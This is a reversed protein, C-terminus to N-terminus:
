RIIVKKVSAGKKQIYIGGVTVNDVRIGQLTFYESQEEDNASIEDISTVPDNNVSVKMKNLDFRIRYTGPDKTVWNYDESQNTKLDMDLGDKNDVAVEAMDTEPRFHDGWGPVLSARFKKGAEVNECPYEFVNPEVQNMPEFTWNTIEGVFFLEKAVIKDAPEASMTMDRLNVTIKYLGEKSVTWNNDNLDSGKFVSMPCNTMGDSGFSVNEDPHIWFGSWEMDNRLSLKFNGQKLKAQYTFIYPDNEDPVFSSGASTGWNGVTADGVAYVTNALVPLKESYDKSITVKATELNFIIRYYGDESVCWNKDGDGMNNFDIDQTSADSDPALQTMDAVAHVQPGNWVENGGWASARFARRGTGYESLMNGEYYFVHDSTKLLEWATWGTNDGVMFLNEVEMLSSQASAACAFIIAAFLTVLTKKM